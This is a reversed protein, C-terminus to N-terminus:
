KFMLVEESILSTSIRSKSTLYYVKLKKALDLIM